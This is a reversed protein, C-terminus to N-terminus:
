SASLDFDPQGVSFTWQLFLLLINWEFKASVQSSGSSWIARYNGLNGGFHKRYTPHDSQSVKNKPELINAWWALVLASWGTGSTNRVLHKINGLFHHDLNCGAQLRYLTHLSPSVSQAWRFSKMTGLQVKCGTVIWVGSMPVRPPLPSVGLGPRASLFFIGVKHYKTAGSRAPHSVRGSHCHTM